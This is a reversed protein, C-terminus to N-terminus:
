RHVIVAGRNLEIFSGKQLEDLITRENRQFIALLDGNSINGTSVLLLKPPGKRLEFSLQFDADKTVLTRGEKNTFELLIADKTRNGDPLDLTHVVEHGQRLFWEALARPLQADVLFKV